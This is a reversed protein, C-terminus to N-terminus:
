DDETRLCYITEISCLCAAEQLASDLLSCMMGQQQACTLQPFHVSANAIWAAANYLTQSCDVAAAIRLCVPFCATLM